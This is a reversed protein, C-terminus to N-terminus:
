EAIAQPSISEKLFTEISMAQPPDAAGARISEISEM